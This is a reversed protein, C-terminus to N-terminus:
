TRDKEGAIDKLNLEADEQYQHDLVDAIPLGAIATLHARAAAFKGVDMFVEALELRHFIHDPKLAVAKELYRQADAWNAKDMFGAGFLTKAFFRQIGSLRKIEAHWAGLVHHAGDHTSDLEVAQMAEDYIIRAFRVRERGGRTLSLRGLANAIMFHGEAGNPDARVAAVALARAELYLSDRRQELSDEGSQIQKAIDVLSRSTKWLADYSTSDLALAARYHRLAGAPDLAATAADGLAVHEAVAERAQAPSPGPAALLASALTCLSPTIRM